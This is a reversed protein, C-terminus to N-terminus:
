VYPPLRTRSDTTPLPPFARTFALREASTLGDPIRATILLSSANNASAEFIGISSPPNSAITSGNSVVIGSSRIRGANNNRNKADIDVLSSVNEIERATPFTFRQAGTLSNAAVSKAADFQSVSVTAPNSRIQPYPEAIKSINNPQRQIVADPSNNPNQSTTSNLEAAGLRSPDNDYFASNKGFHPIDKTSGQKYIVSEYEVTLTSEMVKSNDSYDYNDFTFKSVMPNVLRYLTYTQNSMSYIDISDIFRVTQKNDLGYRKTRAALEVDLTDAWNTVESNNPDAYYYSNYALWLNRIVNKSDDHFSINVPDYTLRTQVRERWNYKNLTEVNVTYKPLDVRKALASIINKEVNLVNSTIPNFSIVVHFLFGLKPSMVYGPEALFTKAAHAYDRTIFGAKGSSNSIAM